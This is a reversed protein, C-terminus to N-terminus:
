RRATELLYKKVAGKVREMQKYTGYALQVFTEDLGCTGFGNGLNTEIKNQGLFDHFGYANEASPFVVVTKNINNEIVGFGKSKLFREFDYKTEKIRARMSEFYKEEELAVMAANVSASAVSYMTKIGSIKEIQKEEGAIYGVRLGALSYGKSFSRLVVINPVDEIEGIVSEGGFDIYTEDVAVIGKTKNAISIIESKDLIGFPNNPNCLFILSRDKLDEDSYKLAYKKGDFCNMAEYKLGNRKAADLFEYYTPTFFLINKGFARLVLDIGEDAGCTLVINKQEIDHKKALKAVLVGYNQPYLNADSFAHKRIKDIIKKPLPEKIDGLKLNIECNNHMDQM